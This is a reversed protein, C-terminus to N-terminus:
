PESATAESEVRTWKSEHKGDESLYVFQREDLAVIKRAQHKKWMTMVIEYSTKPEGGVSDFIAVGREIKWNMRITVKSGVVLSWIRDPVVVLTGTGDEHIALSWTGSNQRSWRGVVRSRLEDDDGSEKAAASEKAGPSTEPVTEQAIPPQVGSPVNSSASVNPERSSLRVATLAAFLALGCAAAMRGNFRSLRGISGSSAADEAPFGAGSPVSM